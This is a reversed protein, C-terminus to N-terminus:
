VCMWMDAAGTAAAAAQRFRCLHTGRSRVEKKIKAETKAKM